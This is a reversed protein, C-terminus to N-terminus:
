ALPDVPLGERASTLLAEITRVNVVSQALPMVPSAQGRIVQVFNELQLAYADAEEIEFRDTLIYGWEKKRHILEITVQGFIGWAIPLRLRGGACAIELEESFSASKSSEVFGVVGNDYTIMGHLRNVVGYRENPRGAGLVRAPAGGSFHNCANVLYSMWDHAVGGGCEARFRWDDAGSPGAGDPEHNSFVARISDVPGLDGQALLRELKRFAPHHRQMCAEIVTAGARAAASEIRLAEEGSLALSKECLVNRVGHALCAEIQERHQNPWTCLVVGDLPVQDLMAGLDSFSAGVGHETAWRQARDAAVDCCAALELGPITAAARAHVHSHAGCGVVGLRVLPQREM